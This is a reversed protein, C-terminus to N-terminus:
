RKEIFEYVFKNYADLYDAKRICFYVEKFVNKFRGNLYKNFIEAVVEARLGGDEVGFGPILLTDINNEYAINLLMEVRFAVANYIKRPVDLPKIPLSKKFKTGNPPTISIVNIKRVDDTTTRYLVDPIFLSRNSYLGKFHENHKNYDYFTNKFSYLINGLNTNKCIDEEDGDNIFPTTSAIMGCPDTFSAPNVIAMGNNEPKAKAEFLGMVRIPVIEIKTESFRQELVHPVITNEYVITNKVSSQTSYLHKGEMFEIHEKIGNNTIKELLKEM